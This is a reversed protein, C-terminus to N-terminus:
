GHPDGRFRNTERSLSQGVALPENNLDIHSSGVASNLVVRVEPSTRKRAVKLPMSSM